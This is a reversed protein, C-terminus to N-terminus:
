RQRKKRVRARVRRTKTQGRVRAMDTVGPTLESSGSSTAAAVNMPLLWMPGFRGRGTINAIVERVFPYLAAPGATRVYDKLPMNEKGEYVQVLAVMTVDLNYLPREDPNSQVTIRVLGTKQDPSVGGQFNVALNPQGLQTNPPLHLVDERHSFHVRELFIQGVVIGPPRSPDM